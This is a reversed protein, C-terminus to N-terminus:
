GDLRLRYGVGPETIIIMPHAPDPEIKRRLQTIFVRLTPTDQESNSGWLARLLMRHTLVKDAHQVLVQLLAYETPTLHVEEDRVVIRRHALDIQLDHTRIVGQEVSGAPTARRLAVRIRALLENMGFPKTLYDDAGSDLVAVKEHETNRVTLILIPVSSWERIRRCVEMGDMGPLGLDLLVLDPRWSTMMELAAPGDAAVAVDYGCAHLTTKLLRGMQPEDDVILIRANM